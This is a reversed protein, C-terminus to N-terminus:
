KHIKLISVFKGYNAKTQIKIKPLNLNSKHGIKLANMSIDNM